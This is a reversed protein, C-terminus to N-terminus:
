RVRAEAGDWRGRGAGGGLVGRAPTPSVPGRGELVLRLGWTSFDSIEVWPSLFSVKNRFLTNM